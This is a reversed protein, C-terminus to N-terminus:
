HLVEADRSRDIVLPEWVGHEDLLSEIRDPRVREAIAARLRLASDQADRSREIARTMDHVANLQEQRIAVVGSSTTAAAIILAVIKAFM